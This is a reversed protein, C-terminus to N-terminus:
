WLLPMKVGLWAGDFWLTLSAWLLYSVLAGVLIRAVPTKQLRFVFYGAYASVVPILAVSYRSTNKDLVVHVIMLLASGLFVSLAMYWWRNRPAVMLGLVALGIGIGLYQGYLGQQWAYDWWREALTSATAEGAMSQLQTVILSLYQSYYAAGVFALIV